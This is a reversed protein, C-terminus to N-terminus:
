IHYAALKRQVDRFYIMLLFQAIFSLSRIIRDFPDRDHIDQSVRALIVFPSECPYLYNSSSSALLRHPPNCKENVSLYLLIASESLILLFLSILCYQIM